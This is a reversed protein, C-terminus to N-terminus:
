AAYSDIQSLLETLLEQRQNELKSILEAVEKDNKGAARAILVAQVEHKLYHAARANDGGLKIPKPFLGKQQDSWLMTKSRGTSKIFDGLRWFQITKNM